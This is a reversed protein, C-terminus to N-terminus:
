TWAEMGSRLICELILRVDVGLAELNDIEM